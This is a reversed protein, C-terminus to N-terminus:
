TTGSGKRKTRGHEVQEKPEAAEESNEHGVAARCPDRTISVLRQMIAPGDVLKDTCQM